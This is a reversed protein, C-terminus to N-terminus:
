HILPSTCPDCFAVRGYTGTTGNASIDNCNGNVSPLSSCTFDILSGIIASTNSTKPTFQCSLTSELCQCENDNPTPPLTTSALWTSNNPPCSPFQTTGASSKAPVTPFTVNGYQAQLRGFDANPTVTSGSITVMGFQGDNSQAPFYSFAVGGSWIDSMPQSFITGVETWLRPPNKM